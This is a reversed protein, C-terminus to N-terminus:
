EKKLIYKVKGKERVEELYGMATLGKLRRYVTTKPLGTQKVLDSLTSVGGSKKVADLVLKDREDLEVVVTEEEKVEESRKGKVYRFIIFLLSSDSVILAIIYVLPSLSSSRQTTIDDYLVTTQSVNEFTINYLDGKVTFSSPQPYLYTISSGAPILVSISLNEPQQTEIVGKPLETRYSLTVDSGQIIITKDQIVYNGGKIKLCTFNNGILNIKSINYLYATVTGNYYINIMGSSSHLIPVLLM